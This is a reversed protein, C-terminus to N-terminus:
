FKCLYKDQHRQKKHRWIVCHRLVKGLASMNVFLSGMIMSTIQLNRNAGNQFHVFAQWSWFGPVCDSDLAKGTFLTPAFLLGGPKLVRFIEALAREPKPMIHLANAIVVSDFTEPEYPLNTADQISFHLRRSRGQKKAEEIMNESFDTAEWLQVKAALRFSLQGSGCALELVNMQRTLHPEMRKCIDAYLQDSSKMFPAYLGATKQWFQKNDHDM